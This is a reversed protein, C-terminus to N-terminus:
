RERSCRAYWAPRVDVARIVTGRDGVFAIRKGEPSWDLPVGQDLDTMVPDTNELISTNRGNRDMICIRPPGQRDSIFAIRRGDPSFRPCRETAHNTTLRKLNRGEADMSYVQYSEGARDSAFVIFHEPLLRQLSIVAVGHEPEDYAAFLRRGDSSFALNCRQGWSGALSALIMGDNPDVCFIRKATSLVALLGELQM